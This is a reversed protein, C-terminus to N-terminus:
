LYNEKVHFSKNIKIFSKIRFVRIKELLILVDNKIIKGIDFDIIVVRVIKIDKGEIFDNGVKGLRM